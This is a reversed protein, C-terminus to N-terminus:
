RPPPGGPWMVPRTPRSRTFWDPRDHRPSRPLSTPSPSTSRRASRIPRGDKPDNSSGPTTAVRCTASGCTRMVVSNSQRTSRRTPWKRRSPRVRSGAGRGRSLIREIDRAHQWARALGALRVVVLTTIILWCISIVASEFGRTPPDFVFIAPPIASAVSMLVVRQWNMQAVPDTAREALQTISPHLGAGGASIVALAGLITPIMTSAASASGSGLQMGIAFEGAVIFAMCSSLLYFSVNKRGPGIALRLIMALITLAELTFILEVVRDGVGLSSDRLYPLIVYVWALSGLGAVAIVSDLLNTPDKGHVRRRVLRAAGTIVFAFAIADLLDAVNPSNVIGFSDLVARTIAGGLFTAIACAFINLARPDAPQWWKIGKRLAVISAVTIVVYAADLADAGAVSAIALLTTTALLYRRWPQQFM